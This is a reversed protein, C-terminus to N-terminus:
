TDRGVTSPATPAPALVPGPGSPELGARHRAFALERERLALERAHLDLERARLERDDLATAARTPSTPVTGTRAVPAGGDGDPGTPLAYVRTRPRRTSSWVGWGILAVAAAVMLTQVHEGAWQRVWGLKPVGYLLVGRVQEPSVPADVATNADGRTVLRCRTGDGVDGISKGVVRHSILTPDGPEPFYSIVDGVGVDTCVDDGTVGRVVLVDGPAFTPEMSGSLVTLSAGGTLRPVGLLAVVVAILAIVLASSVAQGAIRWPSDYWRRPSRFRAM